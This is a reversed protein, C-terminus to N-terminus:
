DLRVRGLLRRPNFLASLCAAADRAPGGVFRDYYAQNYPGIGHEASFCGGYNAVILTNLTDRIRRVTDPDFDPADAHPWVLNFHNGGDGVHGFDCIRLWPFDGAILEYAEAHFRPWAGRRLSVDFGLIWGEHRLAEPIAHRIEWLKERQSVVGDIVTGAAAFEELLSQLLDDLSAQGPISTAASTIEILVAYDPISAPHFPNQLHPVHRFVAGMANGSMGEFATLTEGLRSEAGCLLEPVVERSGPVILAAAFHRPLVQAELEAHTIIGFAGGTGIFLQKLDMGVNDKRLGSGLEVVTCGADALVVELGLVARRVGGYRMLRAGGTNTAVMGGITPDAALDIPFTLGDRALVTNLASLRVGGSARVSRNERDVRVTSNLKGLSLIAQSGSADPTSAGVLGTNAGQPIVPVGHQMCLRLALAVEETSRPLVVFAASGGGYRAATEYAAVDERKTLVQSENLSSALSRMCGAVDGMTM